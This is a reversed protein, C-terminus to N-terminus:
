RAGAADAASLGDEPGSEPAPRPATVVPAAADLIALRYGARILQGFIHEAIGLHIFSVPVLRGAIRGHATQADSARAATEADPGVLVFHDGLRFAPVLGPYESAIAARHRAISELPASLYDM